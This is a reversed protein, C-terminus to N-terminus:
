PKDILSFVKVMNKTHLLKLGGFSVHVFIFHWLWSEDRVETQFMAQFKASDNEKKDFHKFAEKSEAKFAAGINTKEKMDTVIRLPFLHNRTMPVKAILQNRPHIYKIVCHNDEM